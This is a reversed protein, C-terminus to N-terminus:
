RAHTLGVDYTSGSAIVNVPTCICCIRCVGKVLIRHALRPSIATRTKRAPVSSPSRM